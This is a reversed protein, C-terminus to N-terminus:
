CRIGMQGTLHRRKLLERAKAHSFWAMKSTISDNAHLDLEVFFKMFFLGAARPSLPSQPAIALQAFSDRAELISQSTDADYTECTCVTLLKPTLGGCASLWTWFSSLKSDQSVQAGAGHCFLFVCNFADQDSLADSLDEPRRARLPTEGVLEVDKKRLTNFIRDAFDAEWGQADCSGDVVM